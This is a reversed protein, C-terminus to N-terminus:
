SIKFWLYLCFDDVKVIKKEEDTCKLKLKSFEKEIDNIMQM